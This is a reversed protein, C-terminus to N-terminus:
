PTARQVRVNLTGSYASTTLQVVWNGAVGSSSTANLSPVLAADYVVTGAADRLLLRASGASTTTAHNIVAATGANQWTWTRTTTVARVNTAQLQFSNAANTIEPQFPALPDSCGAIGLTLCLLSAGIGARTFATTIATFSM